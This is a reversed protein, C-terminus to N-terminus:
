AARESSAIAEIEVLAGPVVLSAVVTARAPRHEGFFAAYAIDFEAFADSTVLWATTKVIHRRDLGAVRLAQELNELAQLTQAAVGSALRGDPMSGLQGSAFTFAGIRVASTLHPTM